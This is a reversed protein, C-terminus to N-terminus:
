DHRIGQLIEAIDKTITEGRVPLVEINRKRFLKREFDSPDAVIIAARRGSDSRPLSSFQDNMLRFLYSVNWDSFSYGIFLCFRNLLDARLRYDMDTSLTLREQYDFESLVMKDQHNLDGHFKVIECTGAGSRLMDEEKAVSQHPRGGLRFARELFDDYNTTYILRCREMRVIENLIVSQRIADDPPRMTTVLWNNLPQFSSKEIRFYELIQLPEGRVRLLAPDSFGLEIAAQDVLESWSPGRKAEGGETWQVSMSVGAGIFLM